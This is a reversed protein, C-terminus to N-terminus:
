LSYAHAQPYAKEREDLPLSVLCSAAFHYEHRMEKRLIGRGSEGM